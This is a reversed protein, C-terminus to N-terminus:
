AARFRGSLSNRYGEGTSSDWQWHKCPSAGKCCPLEIPRINPEEQQIEREINADAIQRALDLTKGELKKEHPTNKPQKNAPHNDPTWVGYGDAEAKAGNRGGIFGMMWDIEGGITRYHAEAAGQVRDYLADSVKIQKSM